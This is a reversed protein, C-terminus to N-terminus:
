KKMNKGTSQWWYGATKGVIRLMGWIAVGCFASCVSLLPLFVFFNTSLLCGAAALQGVGHLIAGAVCVSLSSFCRFRKVAAMGTVSFLMGTLSYILGSLHGTFLASLLGKAVGFVLAAPFSTQYLMLVVPLNSLGLKVGPVPIQFPLVAEVWSLILAAAMLLSTRALVPIPIRRKDSLAM